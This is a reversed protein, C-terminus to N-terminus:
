IHNFCSIYIKSPRLHPSGCPEGVNEFFPFTFQVIKSMQLNTKVLKTAKNMGSCELAHISVPRASQKQKIPANFSASFLPWIKSGAMFLRSPNDKDQKDM